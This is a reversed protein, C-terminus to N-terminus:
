LYPQVRTYPHHLLCASGQGRNSPGHTYTLTFLPHMTSHWWLLIPSAPQTPRKEGKQQTCTISLLSFMVMRVYLVLSLCCLVTPPVWLYHTSMSGPTLAPWLCCPQSMVYIISPGPDAILSISAYTTHARSNVSGMIRSWCCVRRRIRIPYYLPFCIIVYHDYAMSKLILAEEVALTLFFFCQIWCGIFLIAKNGLLFNSAM